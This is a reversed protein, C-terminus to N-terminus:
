AFWSPSFVFSGGNSVAILNASTVPGLPSARAYFSGSLLISGSSTVNFVPNGPGIYDGLDIAAGGSLSMTTTTENWYSAGGTSGGTQSFLGGNVVSIRAGNASGDSALYNGGPSLQYSFGENITFTRVVNLTGGTQHWVYLGPSTSANYQSNYFNLDGAAGITGATQTITTTISSTTNFNYAGTQSASGNVAISGDNGPSPFGNTWDGGDYLNGTPTGNFITSAHTAPLPAFAIVAAAAVSAVIRPLLASRPTAPKHM